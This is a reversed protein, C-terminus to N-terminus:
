SARVPLYSRGCDMEIPSMPPLLSWREAPDLPEILSSGDPAGAVVRRNGFQDAQILWGALRIELGSPHRAEWFTPDPRFDVTHWIPASM